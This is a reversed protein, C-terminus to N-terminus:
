KKRNQKSPQKQKRKHIKTRSLQRTHLLTYFTSSDVVIIGANIVTRDNSAPHVKQNFSEISLILGVVSVFAMVFPLWVSWKKARQWWCYRCISQAVVLERGKDTLSIFRENNQRPAGEIACGVGILYTTASDSLHIKGNDQSYLTSSQGTSVDITLDDITTVEKILPLISFQGYKEFKPLLHNIVRIVIDDDACNCM